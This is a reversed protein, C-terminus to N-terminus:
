ATQRRREARFLRALIPDEIRDADGAPGGASTRVPRLEQKAPRRGRAVRFELESVIGQGVVRELKDLIQRRLGHLQRQWLADEVEIVLRSRVLALATTRDALRKGVAARWAAKALEEPTVYRGAISGTRLLKAAREMTQSVSM